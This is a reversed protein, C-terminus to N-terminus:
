RVAEQETMIAPFNRKFVVNNQFPQINIETLLNKILATEAMELYHRLFIILGELSLWKAICDDKYTILHM